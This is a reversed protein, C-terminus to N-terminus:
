GLLGGVQIAQPQLHVFQPGLGGHGEAPGCLHGGLQAAQNAVM